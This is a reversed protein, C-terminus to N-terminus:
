DSIKVTRIAEAVDSIIRGVSLGSRQASHEALTAAVNALGTIIDPAVAAFAQDSATAGGPVLHMVEETAALINTQADTSGTAARVVNLANLAHTRQGRTWVPGVDNKLLELLRERALTSARSGRQTAAREVAEYEVDSLRVQLVKGRAQRPRSDATDDSNQEGEADDVNPELADDWEDMTNVKRDYRCRIVAM